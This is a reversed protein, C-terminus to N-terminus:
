KSEDGRITWVFAGENRHREIYRFLREQHERSRVPDTRCGAAWISGPREDRLKHSADQKALGIIRKVGRDEIRLQIHVHQGAVAIAIVECDKEILKEIIAHACTEREGPALTVPDGRMTRRALTQLGAHEGKPPRNRYDGSSHRKHGKTRFGRPDGPLWTGYTSFTVHFWKRMVGSAYRLICFLALTRDMLFIRSDLSIGTGEGAKPPSLFPTRRICLEGKKGPLEDQSRGLSRLAHYVRLNVPAHIVPPAVIRM